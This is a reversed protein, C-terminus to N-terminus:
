IQAKVSEIAADYIKIEVPSLNKNGNRISTWEELEAILEERKLKREEIPRKFFWAVGAAIWLGVFMLGGLPWLPITLAALVGLPKIHDACVTMSQCTWCHEHNDLWNLMHKVWYHRAIFIGPILYAIGGIWLLVEVM